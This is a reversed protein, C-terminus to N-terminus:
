APPAVATSPLRSRESGSDKSGFWHIKGRGGAKSAYLAHDAREILSEVSSDSADSVAVGISCGLSLSRGERKVTSSAVLDGIRRALLSTENSDRRGVLGVVFEDGGYRAIVDSARTSARLADAVVRLASDGGEHGLSDNIRKLEDLDIFLVTLVLEGESRRVSALDLELAELAAGRNLLGTLSDRTAREFLQERQSEGTRMSVRLQSLASDLAAGTRGPLSRQLAPNDLDGRALAIAQAQVARLTSSM